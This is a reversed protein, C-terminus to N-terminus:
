TDLSVVPSAIEGVLDEVELRGVPNNSVVGVLPKIHVSLPSGQSVIGVGRDTEIRRLSLTEVRKARFSSRGQSFVKNSSCVRLPHRSVGLLHLLRPIIGELEPDVM